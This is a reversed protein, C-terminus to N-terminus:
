FGGKTKTRYCNVVIEMFVFGIKKNKARNRRKQVRSLWFAVRGVTSNSLKARNKDTKRKNKAAKAMKENERCFAKFVRM